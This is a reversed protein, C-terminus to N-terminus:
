PLTEVRAGRSGVMVLRRAALVTVGYYPMPQTPKWSQFTRGRDNSILVEGGQTVLADRGDSLVVGDSIGAVTGLNVKEWSNGGDASRLLSGRMGYALLNEGDAILGFLTGNYPTQIAAFRKAAPDLKWVMGQEGTLYTVKSHRDVAVAYFHLEKTNDIRDMWPTWTKGGDETRWIRNFTGVVFGANETEFHVDLLSRTNGEAIMTKAQRLARESDANPTTAMAAAYFRVALDAAQQGNLQKTWTAGGDSTHVVVGDHGAAWGQLPSPFSVAVLDSSVPVKAQKWTKGEDDSYVIHGRLGVAVVRSGANVVAILPSHAALRSSMAPTDSPSQYAFAVGSACLAAGLFTTRLYRAIRTLKM